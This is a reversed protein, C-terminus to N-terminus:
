RVRLVFNYKPDDFHFFAEVNEIKHERLYELVPLLSKFDKAELDNKTWLGPGVLYREEGQAKLLVRMFAGKENPCQSVTAM